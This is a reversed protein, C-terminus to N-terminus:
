SVATSSRSLAKLEAFADRLTDGFGAGDTRAVWTRFAVKFVALGAEATLRATVPEVGHARLAQALADSTTALKGLERERLAPTADIVRQRQRARDARQDFFPGLAAFGAAVADLPNVGSGQALAADLATTITDVFEGQGSFLVERKDAFYRFFTRETLGARRAIDDVTTDDFGREAYLQLAAEELRERANPQWRSM